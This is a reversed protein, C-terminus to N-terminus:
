RSGDGYWDVDTIESDIQDDLSHRRGAGPYVGSPEHPRLPPPQNARPRDLAHRPGRDGRIWRWLSDLHM